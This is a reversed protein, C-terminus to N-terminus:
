SSAHWMLKKIRLRHFSIIFTYHVSHAPRFQREAAVTLKRKFLAPAHGPVSTAVSLTSTYRMAFRKASITHFTTFTSLAIHARSICVFANRHKCTFYLRICQSTYAFHARSMCVFVSHYLHSTHVHLVVFVNRHMHLAYLSSTGVIVHAEDFAIVITCYYKDTTALYLIASIYNKVHQTIPVGAIFLCIVNIYM